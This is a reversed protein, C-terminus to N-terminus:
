YHMCGDCAEGSLKMVSGKAEEVLNVAGAESQRVFMEVCHMEVQMTENWQRRAALAGIVKLPGPAASLSGGTMRMMGLVTVGCHRRGGDGAIGIGIDKFRRPGIAMGRAAYTADKSAFQVTV